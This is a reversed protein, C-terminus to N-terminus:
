VVSKRDTLFRRMGFEGRIRKAEKELEVPNVPMAAAADGRSMAEKHAAIKSLRIQEEIQASQTQSGAQIAGRQQEIGYTGVLGAQAGIAATQLGTAKRAALAADSADGIQKTLALHKEAYQNAYNIWEGTHNWAEDIGKIQDTVMKLVSGFVPIQEMQELAARSGKTLATIGANVAVLTATMAGGAKAFGGLSFTSGGLIPKKDGGGPQQKSIRDASEKIKREAQQLDNALGSLDARIGVAVEGVQGRKAM